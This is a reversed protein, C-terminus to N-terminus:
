DKCYLCVVPNMRYFHYGYNSATVLFRRVFATCAPFSKAHVETIQLNHLNDIAIYNLSTILRTNLADIFGFGM